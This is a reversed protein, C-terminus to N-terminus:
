YSEEGSYLILVFIKVINIGDEDKLMEEYRALEALSAEQSGWTNEETSIIEAISNEENSYKKDYLLGTKIQSLKKRIDELTEFIKGSTIFDILDMVLVDKFSTDLLVSTFYSPHEKSDYTINNEEIRNSYKKFHYNINELKEEEIIDKFVYNKRNFGDILNGVTFDDNRYVKVEDNDGRYTYAFVPRDKFINIVMDNLMHGDPRSMISGTKREFEAIIHNVNDVNDQFTPLKSKVFNDVAEYVEGSYKKFSELGIVSPEQTFLNVNLFETVSGKSIEDLALLQGKYLGHGNELGVTIDDLVRIFGEPLDKADETTFPKM